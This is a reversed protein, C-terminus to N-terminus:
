MERPARNYRNKLIIYRELERIIYKISQKKHHPHNATTPPRIIRDTPRRFRNISFVNKKKKVTCSVHRTRSLNWWRRERNYPARILYFFIIIIVSITYPNLINSDFFSSFVVYYTSATTYLIEEGTTSRRRDYTKNEIEFECGSRKVPISTEDLRRGGSIRIIVYPHFLINNYVQSSTQRSRVRGDHKTLLIGSRM